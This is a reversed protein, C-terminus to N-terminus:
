DDAFGSLWMGLRSLARNYLKSTAESSKGILEAAKQNSQNEFARLFLVERMAEPLKGIARELKEYLESDWYDLSEGSSGPVGEVISDTLAIDGARKKANFYDFKKRIKNLVCVHLYRNLSDAGEPEFQDIDAVVDKFVSQLIDESQLHTRLEPGLRCRTYLLLRDRYRLYLADWANADGHKARRVLEVSVDSEPIPSAPKGDM